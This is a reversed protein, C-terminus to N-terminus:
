GSGRAADDMMRRISNDVLEAASLHSCEECLENGSVEVLEALTGCSHCETMDAM